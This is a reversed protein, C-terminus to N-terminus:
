CISAHNKQTLFAEVQNRFHYSSITDLKTVSLGGVANAFKLADEIKKGESLAVALGANFSDGAGVTDVVEQMKFSPVTVATVKNCLFSGKEGLTIVVNACGLGLLKRATEECNFGIDPTLGLCLEAETKNPTLFDIMSLDYKSLDQAPAPNLIVTAGKGKAKKAAYLATNLPIELQLLVISNESIIGLAADIDDEGFENLAAIDITIINKGSEDCIIFGVGTPLNNSKVVFDANIQEDRCLQIFADGFSDNGVRGIFSTSVGLRAAQIAQNSGKGGHVKRFNEAIVTEGIKPIRKANMVLAVLYSGVVVINKNEVIIIIKIIIFM